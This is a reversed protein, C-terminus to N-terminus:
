GVIDLSCNKVHKTRKVVAAEGVTFSALSIDQLPEKQFAMQMSLFRGNHSDIRVGQVNVNQCYVPHIAWFPSDLITIGTVLVNRSGFFQTMAPRLWHDKGFIRQHVPAGESGM